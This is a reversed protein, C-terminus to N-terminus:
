DILPIERDLTIGSRAPVQMFAEKASSLALNWILKKLDQYGRSFQSLSARSGLICRKTKAAYAVRKYKM